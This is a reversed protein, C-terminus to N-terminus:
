LTVTHPRTFLFTEPAPFCKHNLHTRTPGAEVTAPGVPLSCVFTPQLHSDTRHLLSVLQKLIGPPDAVDAKFRDLPPPLDIVDYGGQKTARRNPPIKARNMPCAVSLLRRFKAKHHSRELIYALSTVRRTDDVVSFRLNRRNM